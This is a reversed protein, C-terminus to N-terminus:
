TSTGEEAKSQSLPFVILGDPRILTSKDYPFPFFNALRYASYSSMLFASAGKTLHVM